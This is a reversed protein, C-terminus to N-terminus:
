SKLWINLEEYNYIFDLYTPKKFKTSKPVFKKLIYLNM